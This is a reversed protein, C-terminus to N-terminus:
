TLTNKVINFMKEKKKINIVEKKFVLCEKENM